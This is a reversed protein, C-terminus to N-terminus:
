DYRKEKNHSSQNVWDILEKRNFYIRGQPKHFPIRQKHVLKYLQSKSISLFLCAEEFSFIEKVMYHMKELVVIRKMLENAGGIEKLESEIQDMREEIRLLLHKISINENM